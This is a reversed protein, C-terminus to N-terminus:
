RQPWESPRIGSSARRQYVLFEIVPGSEGDQTVLVRAPGPNGIVLIQGGAECVEGARPGAFDDGHVRQRHIQVEHQRAKEPGGAPAGFDEDLGAREGGIAVGHGRLERPVVQIRCLM